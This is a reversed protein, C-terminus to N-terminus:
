ELKKSAFVLVKENEYYLVLNKGEIKARNARTLAKIYSDEDVGQCFMKTSMLQSIVLKGEADLTYSGGFRNCGGNGSIKNDATFIADPLGKPYDAATASKGGISSLEWRSSTLSEKSAVAKSTTDCSTFVTMILLISFLIITKKM